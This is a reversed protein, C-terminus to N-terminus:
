GLEKIKGIIQALEWLYDYTYIGSKHGDTWEIGMAYRGVSYIRKPQVGKQVNERKLTKQGTWEDVCAACPCNFRLEELNYVVYAQNSWGILLQDSNDRTFFEPGVPKPYSAFTKKLTESIPFAPNSLDEKGKNEHLKDRDQLRPTNTHSSNQQALSSPNVKIKSNTEAATESNTKSHNEVGSKSGWDSDTELAPTQNKKQNLDQFVEKNLEIFESTTKLDGYHLNYELLLDGQSQTLSLKATIEAAINQYARSVPSSPEMKVLPIGSDGSLSVKSDLPLEGLFPIGLTRATRSGGGQQFIYHKKDCEDCIFFSMNEVIGLVPVSVKEFMRMGRRVDLLSVEQPTTVIVSGSLPASQTLTLAIDGTGPPLDILLYDLEGWLVNRLFTQVMQSVMPGRWIVASNEDTFLSMSIIKVGQVEVPHIHKNQDAKPSETIGFMIGMSPGYIDTDMIGVRAGSQALSMALNATVTSKGVGGKGSAVALVYKVQSLGPAPAEQSLPNAQQDASGATTGSKQGMVQYGVQVDVQKIGPLLELHHLCLQKLAERHSRLSLPLALRVM